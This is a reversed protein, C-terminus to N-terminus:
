NVKRLTMNEPVSFKRWNDIEDQETNFFIKEENHLSWKLEKNNQTPTLLLIAMKDIVQDKFTLRLYQIGNNDEIFGQKLSYKEQEPKNTEVKTESLYKYDGFIFNLTKDYEKYYVPIVELKLLLTDGANVGIWTGVFMSLDIKDMDNLAQSNATVSLLVTLLLVVNLRKM